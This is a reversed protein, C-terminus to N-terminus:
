DVGFGRGRNTYSCTLKVIGFSLPVGGRVQRYCDVGQSWGQGDGAVDTGDIGLLGGCDGIGETFLWGAKRGFIDGHDAAGQAVRNGGGIRLDIGGGEGRGCIKFSVGADSNCAASVGICHAIGTACACRRGDADVGQSWGQGDGAVDIGDIGLLGGCDGIGETFLWGAKRGFIDGHDAAGQAVRNGGGIRLDIGGGEGRGCIKFSVGADSNCAASVGIRNAIGATGSCRRNQADVGQCGCNRSLRRAFPRLRQRQRRTFRHATSRVRAVKGYQHVAGGVRHCSHTDATRRHCQRQGVGNRVVGRHGHIIRM